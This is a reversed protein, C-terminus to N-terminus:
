IGALALASEDAVYSSGGRAATTDKVLRSDESWAAINPIVDNKGFLGAAEESQVDTRIAEGSQSGAVEGQVHELTTCNAAREKWGRGFGPRKYTPTVRLWTGFQVRENAGQTSNRLRGICGAAGHGIVGCQFYFKPLREYQLCDM